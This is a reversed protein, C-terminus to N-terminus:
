CRMSPMVEKNLIAQQLEEKLHSPIIYSHNEELHNVIFGFYRQVTESWNERRKKSDLYRAYRSKAIFEEYIM